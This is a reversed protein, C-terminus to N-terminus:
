EIMGEIPDIIIMKDSIDIERIFRKVAPILYEKGNSGDDIVYVDNGGTQLIDKIIGIKNGSIDFVDCDMLDHIFYHNEPLEIRHEDDVYIFDNLFRIVQNIDDFERFKIIVIGKHYRVRQLFVPLKKEGIYAKELYSFRELDSTIPFVKVEGQIGHTNIVKGVITYDM